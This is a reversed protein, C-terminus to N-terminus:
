KVGVAYVSVPKDKGKFVVPGLSQTPITPPLGRQVEEDILFPRGAVKTHDQMRSALNVTDGICTFIARQQTGTFGAVVEGSAIGIGMRLPSKSRLTQEQNFGELLELMELGARVAQERHDDRRIPAGFIAMLGDGVIQNIIGGHDRVPEFMLTFYTNLLEIVQAPDLQESISTFSRIDTFMVSVRVKEGGWAFGKETLEDAVESSALRELLKRQQDRLRKKELSANVRAQLLVTNLPKTLYDEAGMEICKVVSGLEDMASTMIVPIQRLHPDNLCAELVQFGNLEPMEIDLLVIDFSERRMLELAQRGHEALTVTHGQQELGRALLIRNVKNDDVVLLRGPARVNHTNM